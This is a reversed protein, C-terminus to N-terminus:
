FTTINNDFTIINEDFTILIESPQLVTLTPNELGDLINIVGVREVGTKNIDLTFSLNQESSIFEQDLNIFTSETSVQAFKAGTYYSSGRDRATIFSEFIKSVDNTSLTTFIDNILVVKSVGTLINTDINDILYRDGKIILRDNLGLTSSLSIPFNINLTFERRRPNFLDNIYDSYYRQYWNDDLVAGNYESFEANFQAAFGGNILISHSPTNIFSIPEYTDGSFGIRSDNSVPLNPIFFLFPKNQYSSLSNDVILGYQVQSPRLKEFQPNEFPLEIKLEEDSSVGLIQSEFGGFQQGFQSEYENALISEQEEYGFNIDRYLKGRAVELSEIDVYESVDLITGGDYWSSLTNVYLGGDDQPVIVLNSSKVIAAFWDVIKMNEIISKIEVQPVLTDVVFTNDQLDFNVAVGFPITYMESEYISRVSINNGGKSEIFYEFKYVAFPILGFNLSANYDGTVYDSEYVREGDILFVVRYESTGSNVTCFARLKARFRDNVGGRQFVNVNYENVKISSFPNQKNSGNGLSMYLQNFEQTDFFNRSFTIEPYRVEIAEIINICKIAPKLEDWQVGSTFTDDYKININEETDQEVDNYLFRRDYSVLPYKIAGSFLGDELGTKITAPTYAHDLASLDLNRLTDDGILDKIKVTNGFFELKYDTPVNSKLTVDNLQIKGKKLTVGGIEIRGEVKVRADFGNVIQADYYHKFIANNNDNAPVSFSRTFDTFVKTLDKLSQVSQNLNINEDPYLTLREEGVYIAIDINGTM